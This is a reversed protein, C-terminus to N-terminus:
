QAAEMVARGVVEALTPPVANGVARYRAAKTRAAAWPWNDPFDQLTACEEVTLRRRGTAIFLADSARDPGGNFTGGSAASARTGKVETTTVTPSPRELMQNGRGGIAPAPETSPTPREQNPHATTNRMHHLVWPGLGLAEGMSVWPKMAAQFFGLQRVEDPSGHTPTPARVPAPGAWIFVRRRRQPVGFSAADLLFHGVHAFRRRLDPLITQEFYPMSMLGRVNEAVFWTPKFRDIAAVTWPWGNREDEAGRRQGAHSFAQCPFSSWIMDTRRSEDLMHTALRERELLWDEGDDASEMLADGAARWAAEETMWSQRVTAEITDLDRVDGEVVPFLGAARMVACADASWEVLATHQFGARELGLAAGGAGAFLEVCKM